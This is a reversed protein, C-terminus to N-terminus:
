VQLYIVLITTTIHDINLCSVSPLCHQKRDTPCDSFSNGKFVGM